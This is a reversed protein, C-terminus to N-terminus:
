EVGVVDGHLVAVNGVRLPVGDARVGAPLDRYYGLNLISQSHLVEGIYKGGRIRHYAASTEECRSVAVWAAQCLLKAARLVAHVRGYM